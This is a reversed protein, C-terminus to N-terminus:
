RPLLRGALFRRADFSLSLFRLAQFSNTLFGNTLFSRAELTLSLFRVGRLQM